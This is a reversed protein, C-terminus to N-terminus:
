CCFAVVSQFVYTSLLLFRAKNVFCPIIVETVRKYEINSKSVEVFYKFVDMTLMRSMLFLCKILNSSSNHRLGKLFTILHIRPRTVPFITNVVAMEFSSFDYNINEVM